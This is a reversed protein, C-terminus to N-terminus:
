SSKDGVKNVDLIELGPAGHSLKTTYYPEELDFYPPASIGQFVQLYDTNGLGRLVILDPRRSGTVNDVRAARWNSVVDTSPLTVERFEGTTGQVFMLAEAKENCVILDDFGDNNIDAVIPASAVFTRRIWPGKVEEFYPSNGSELTRFM